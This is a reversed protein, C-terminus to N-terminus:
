CGGDVGEGLLKDIVDADAVAIPYEMLETVLYCLKVSHRTQRFQLADWKREDHEDVDGVRKDVADADAAADRSPLFRFNCLFFMWGIGITKVSQSVTIESM